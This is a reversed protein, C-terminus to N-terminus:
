RDLRVVYSVTPPAEPLYRLPLEAVIHGPFRRLWSEISNDVPGWLVTADVVIYRIDLAVARSLDDDPNFRYVRRGPASRWVLPEMNAKNAAYGIRKEEVPLAERIKPVLAAHQFTFSYANRVKAAFRSDPFNNQLASLVFSVPFIPRQRSILLLGITLLVCAYAGTRWWRFRIVRSHGPSALFASLLFPYYPAIYRGTESLGSKAMFVAVSIFPLWRVLRIIWDTKKESKGRRYFFMAVASALLLSSLGIGLGSNLESPARGLRAFHEFDRFPQGAPSQVFRDMADNWQSARPFLPPQFNQVVVVFVNGVFGWIPNSQEAASVGKILGKWNGLYHINALTIPLASATLAIAGALITVPLNRMLLRVAAAMPVIWVLLLPLTTQKTGTLLGVALISIWLDSPRQFRLGRLAFLVAALAPTVSFGDTSFSSAQMAIIWGSPLLWAWWWAVKPRVDTMRLFSFFLGPLLTFATFSVLFAFNDKNFLIFPASLWEFNCGVGNMRDDATHIWHWRQEAFWHLVRPIRYSISDGNTVGNLAAGLFSIVCIVLFLFPLPKRLRRATKRLISQAGNATWRERKAWFILFLIQVSVLLIYGQLNLARFLSM